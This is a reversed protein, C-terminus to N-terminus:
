FDAIFRDFMEGNGETGHIKKYLRCRAVTIAAKSRNILLAMGKVPIGTKVLYCIRLEQGSLKPYLAYLRDTFNVYTTDIATRLETWQTETVKPNEECGAKHFLIYIDSQRFAAELLEQTDRFAHNRRNSLELLEKQSLLLQSQLLDKDAVAEALDRELEKLKQENAEICALSNKYKEEQMRRLRQEQEVAEQRKSRIRWSALIGALVVTILCSLLLYIHQLYAKNKLNLELNKREEHQFSYLLHLKEIANSQVAMGVNNQLYLYRERHVSAALTDGQKEEMEMLLRHALSQEHVDGCRITEQFYRRAQEWDGRWLYIRGMCLLANSAQPNDKLVEALIEQPQERRGMEFYVCGLESAVSNALQQYGLRRCMQLAEKYYWEANSNEQKKSHVHAINRLARAYGPMDKAQEYYDKSKRFMRQAEDYIYQEVLLTGMQEYANGVTGHLKTQEGNEVAQYFAKLARPVDNMDHYINGLCYYAETLRERNGCKEYFRVVPLILSDSAAPIHLRDNARVMLLRRYMRVEEPADPQEAESLSLLVLTSDPQADVLSEAQTLTDSLPSSTMGCAVQLLICLLPLMSKLLCRRIFGITVPTRKM